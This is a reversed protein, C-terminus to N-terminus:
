DGPHLFNSGLAAPHWRRNNPIHSAHPLSPALGVRSLLGAKTERIMRVKM